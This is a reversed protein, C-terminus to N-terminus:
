LGRRHSRSLNARMYRETQIERYAQLEGLGPRQAVRQMVEQSFFPDPQPEPKPKDSM